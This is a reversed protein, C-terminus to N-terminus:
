PIRSPSYRTRQVFRLTDNPFDSLCVHFISVMSEARSQVQFSEQAIRFKDKDGIKLTFFVDRARILLQSRFSRVSALGVLDAMGDVLTEVEMDVKKNWEEEIADLYEASNQDISSQSATARQSLNATPLASPRSVDTQPIESM